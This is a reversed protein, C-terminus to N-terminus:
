PVSPRKTPAAIALPPSTVVFLAQFSAKDGSYLCWTKPECDGRKLLGSRMPLLAVALLAGRLRKLDRAPRQGRRRGGLVRPSGVM